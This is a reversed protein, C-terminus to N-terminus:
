CTRMAPQANPAFDALLSQMTDVQMCVGVACKIVAHGQGKVLVLSPAHCDSPMCSGSTLLDISLTVRNDFESGVHTHM